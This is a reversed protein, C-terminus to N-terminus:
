VEKYFEGPNMDLWNTIKLVTDVGINQPIDGNKVNNFVFPSIGINAYTEYRKIGDQKLKKNLEKSLKDRDFKYM